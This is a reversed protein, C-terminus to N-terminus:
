GDKNEELDGPFNGNELQKSIVWDYTHEISLILRECFESGQEKLYTENLQYARVLIYLNGLIGHAAGLNEV